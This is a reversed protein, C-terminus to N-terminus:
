TASIAILFTLILMAGGHIYIAKRSRNRFLLSWIALQQCGIWAVTMLIGHFLGQPSETKL